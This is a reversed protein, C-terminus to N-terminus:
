ATVDFLHAKSVNTFDGQDTCYQLLVDHMTDMELMERAADAPTVLEWVLPIIKDKMKRQVSLCTTCVPSRMCACHLLRSGVLAVAM